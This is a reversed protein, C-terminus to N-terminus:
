HRFLKPDLSCAFPTCQVGVKYELKNFKKAVDLSVSCFATLMEDPPIISEVGSLAM